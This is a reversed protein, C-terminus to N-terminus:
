KVGEPKEEPVTEGAERLFYYVTNPGVCAFRGAIAKSRASYEVGDLSRLYAAFSGHEDAVKLFEAANRVTAKIKTANRVLGTDACLHDVLEPPMDAVTAPDFDYFAELFHPWKKEVPGWSFGSVFLKKTMLEFYFADTRRALSLRRSM